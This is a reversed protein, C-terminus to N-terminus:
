RSAATEPVTGKGFSIFGPLMVPKSKTQAITIGECSLSGSAQCSGVRMEVIHGGRITLLVGELTLELDAEFNVRGVPKEGILLEVYPNHVSKITHTVLPVVTSENPPHKKADAYERLIGATTWASALVELISVDLLDDTKKMAEGLAAPWAKEPHSQSIRKRLSALAEGSELARLDSVRVPVGDFFGRLTAPGESM